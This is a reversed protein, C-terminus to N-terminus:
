WLSHACQGAASGQGPHRLHASPDGAPGQLPPVTPPPHPDPRAWSLVVRVGTEVLGSRGSHTGNNLAWTEWWVAFRPCLSPTGHEQQMGPAQRGQSHHCSVLPKSCGPLCPTHPADSLQPFCRTAPSSTPHACVQQAQCYVLGVDGAMEELSAPLRRLEGPLELWCYYSAPPSQSHVGDPGQVCDAVGGVMGMGQKSWFASSEECAPGFPEGLGRAGPASRGPGGGPSLGRPWAGPCGGPSLLGKLGESTSPGPCPIAHPPDAAATPPPPAPGGVEQTSYVTGEGEPCHEGYVCRSSQPCWHCRWLSGVCARCRSPCPRSLSPVM